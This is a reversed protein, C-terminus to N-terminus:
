KRYVWHCGDCVENLTVSWHDKIEYTGDTTHTNCEYCEYFGSYGQSIKRVEINVCNQCLRGAPFPSGGLGNLTLKPDVLNTSGCVVCNGSIKQFIEYRPKNTKPHRSHITCHGCVLAGDLYNCHYEDVIQCLCCKSLDDVKEYWRRRRKDDDPMPIKTDLLPINAAAAISNVQKKAIGLKIKGFFLDYMLGGQPHMFKASSQLLDEDSLSRFYSIIMKLRKRQTPSQFHGNELFHEECLNIGIIQEESCDLVICQKTEKDKSKNNKNDIAEIM